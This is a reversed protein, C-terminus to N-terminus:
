KKGEDKKPRGPKRGEAKQEAVRALDHAIGNRVPEDPSGGVPEAVVAVEPGFPVIAPTKSGLGVWDGPRALREVSHKRSWFIFRNGM